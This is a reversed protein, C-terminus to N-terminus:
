EIKDEQHEELLKKIYDLLIETMDKDKRIAYIKFKKHLEEDLRITLTKAIICM